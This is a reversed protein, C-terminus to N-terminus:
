QGGTAMTGGDVVIETGTVFSAEDSMLFRVVRAVEDPRGLRALISKAAQAEIYEPPVGNRLMPTDIYGPCVANVRVGVSGGLHAMSRTLGLLGAKSASYAPIFAQGIFAEISSIGVVASGPNKSLDEWVAQALLAAARLNVDLVADWKDADLYGVPEARVVGAAHVLGGISGLTERSPAVAAAIAASDIVDVGIGIAAVGFEDAIAAAEDKAAAGALDWLAVPRGVEALARACARGIGSAGGTVIVGTGPTHEIM